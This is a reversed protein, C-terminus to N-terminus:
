KPHNGNNPIIEMSKGFLKFGGFKDFWNGDLRMTEELAPPIRAMKPMLAHAHPWFVECIEGFQSLGTIFYAWCLLLNSM